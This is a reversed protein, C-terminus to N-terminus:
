FNNAVYRLDLTCYRHSILESLQKEKSLGEEDLCVVVWEGSILWRGLPVGELVKINTVGNAFAERNLELDCSYM